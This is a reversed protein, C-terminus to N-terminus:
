VACTHDANPMISDETQRDTQRDTGRYTIQCILQKQTYVLQYLVNWNYYM